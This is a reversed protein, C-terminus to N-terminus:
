LVCANVKVNIGLSRAKTAAIGYSLRASLEGAVLVLVGRGDDLERIATLVRTASPQRGRTPGAIAADLMGAGVYRAFAPYHGGRNGALVKVRHRHGVVSSRHGRWYVANGDLLVLRRGHGDTRVLGELCAAAADRDSGETADPPPDINMFARFRCGRDAGDDYSRGSNAAAYDKSDRNVSTANLNYYSRRESLQYNEAVSYM